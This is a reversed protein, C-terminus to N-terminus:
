HCSIIFFGYANLVRRKTSNKLVYNIVGKSINKWYKMLYQNGTETVHLGLCPTPTFECFVPGKDTQFFDLRIYHDYAKGIKKAFFIM